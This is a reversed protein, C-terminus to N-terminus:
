NQYEVQGLHSHGILNKSRRMVDHVEVNETMNKIERRESRIKSVVGKETPINQKRIETVMKTIKNISQGNGAILRIDESNLQILDRGRRSVNKEKKKVCHLSSTGSLAFLDCHKVAVDTHLKTIGYQVNSQTTLDDNAVKLLASGLGAYKMSKWMMSATQYQHSVNLAKNQNRAKCRMKHAQLDKHTSFQELCDITVKLNQDADTFSIKNDCIFTPVQFSPPEQNSSM